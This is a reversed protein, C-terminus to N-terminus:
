IQYGNEISIKLSIIDQHHHHHHQHRKIRKALWQKWRKLLLYTLHPSVRTTERQNKSFAVFADSFTLHLFSSVSPFFISKVQSKRLYLLQSRTLPQLKQSFIFFSVLSIFLHISFPQEKCWSLIIHMYSLSLAPGHKKNHLIIFFWPFLYSKAIKWVTGHRSFPTLSLSLSYPTYLSSVVCM